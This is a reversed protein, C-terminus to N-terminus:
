SGRTLTDPPAVSFFNLHDSFVRLFEVFYCVALDCDLFTGFLTRRFKLTSSGREFQAHAYTTAGFTVAGFFNPLIAKTSVQRASLNETKPSSQQLDDNLRNKFVKRTRYQNNHALNALPWSHGTLSLWLYSDISKTGSPVQSNICIKVLFQVFTPM